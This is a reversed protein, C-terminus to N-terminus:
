NPPPWVSCSLGARMHDETSLGNLFLFIHGDGSSVGDNRRVVFLDRGTKKGLDETQAVLPECSVKRRNAHVVSKCEIEIGGASKFMMVIRKMDTVSLTLSDELANLLCTERKATVRPVNLIPFQICPVTSSPKVEATGVAMQEFHQRASLSPLGDASVFLLFNM